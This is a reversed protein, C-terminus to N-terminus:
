FGPVNALAEKEAAARAEYWAAAKDYDGDQPLRFVWTKKGGNKPQYHQLTAILAPSDDGATKADDMVQKLDKVLNTDGIDVTQESSPKGKDLSEGTRFSYVKAVVHDRPGFQSPVDKRLKTPEIVLALDSVHDGPKFFPALGSGIADKKALAM